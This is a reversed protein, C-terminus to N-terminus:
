PLRALLGDRVAPWEEAIVSFMVTDRISDDARRNYRRLVGEYQAGLRAIAQQSRANRIDTKLQVRGFGHDFAWTMLLLKCEPNVQTGWVARAYSTFGIELRADSPVIDLYSTTGVVAGDQRVTWPFRGISPAKEIWAVVDAPSAPRGKVHAWVIDDDLAAFLGDADAAVTPTLTVHRGVLVTGDAPPWDAVPWPTDGPRPDVRAEFRETM